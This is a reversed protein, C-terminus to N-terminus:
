VTKKVFVAPNGGIVTYPDCGKTVVSGAAVISGEGIKVGKMLISNFGIWSKQEVLIKSSEVASWNKHAWGQKWERVDNIREHSKLSHANTDILTCGWSIMVDDQIEVEDYCFLVTEHGIFVNNGIKVKGRPSYINISGMLYCGSGIEVNLVGREAGLVQLYMRSLDCDEGYKLNGNRTLERLPDKYRLKRYIKRIINM